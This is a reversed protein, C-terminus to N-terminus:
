SMKLVPLKVVFKKDDKNVEIPRDSLYQYRSKINQLGIGTSDKVKKVQLNNEVVLYQNQLYVEIKLPDDESVINHKIANEVLMQLSMPPIVMTGNMDEQDLSFELSDEFRIKQLYVYAELFILENTIPVVEKDRQDLVYRYVDSLKRIFDVAKEQNEYVLSSLANLSNFLFHPNVQNKLSEFRTILQENKLKEMDIATQRWALLFARGHFFTGILLTLLLAFVYPRSGLQSSWYTLSLGKIVTYFLYYISFTALLTFSVTLVLGIAFRKAPNTLWDVHYYNLTFVIYQNGKWMVVWFTGTLIIDDIREHWNDFWLGSFAMQQLVGGLIFILIIQIFEKRFSIQTIDM